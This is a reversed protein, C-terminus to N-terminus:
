LVPRKEKPAAETIGYSISRSSVPATDRLENYGRYCTLALPWVFTTLASYFCRGDTIQLFSISVVRIMCFSPLVQVATAAKGTPLSAPLYFLGMPLPWPLGMARVFFIISVM